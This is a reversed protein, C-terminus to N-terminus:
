CYFMMISFQTSIPPPNFELCVIKLFEFGAAIWDMTVCKQFNRLIKRFISLDFLLFANILINFKALRIEFIM